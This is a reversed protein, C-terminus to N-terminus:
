TQPDRNVMRGVPGTQIVMGHSGGSVSNHVTVSPQSAAAPPSLEELLARLERAAEPDSRLTQRMRQRWTALIDARAEEDQDQDAAILEERSAELEAEVAPSGEEERSLFRAVRGKAATWSETVMQQIVASAGATALAVLEADM